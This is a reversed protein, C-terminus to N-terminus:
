LDLIDDAEGLHLTGRPVEPVSNRDSFVYETLERRKMAIEGSLKESDAKLNLYRIKEEETAKQLDAIETTLIEKRGTLTAVDKQLDEVQADLKEQHRKQKGGASAIEAIRPTGKASIADKRVARGTREQQAAMLRKTTQRLTEDEFQRFTFNQERLEPHECNKHLETRQHYEANSVGDFKIKGWRMIAFNGM